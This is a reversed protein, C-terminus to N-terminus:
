SRLRGCRLLEPLIVARLSEVLESSDIRGDFWEIAEIEGSAVPVGALRGGYLEIRIPKPTSHEFTGLKVPDALAVDGLEERLERELCELETEGPEIKGGPLILKGQKRCLLIRDGRIIAAGVKHIPASM